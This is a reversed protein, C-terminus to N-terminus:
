SRRSYRRPRRQNRSMRQAERLISSSGRVWRKPGAIVNEYFARGSALKEALQSVTLVVCHVERGVGLAADVTRQGLEREMSRKDADYLQETLVFLDVDSEPDAAGRAVSGFVFAATIGPM